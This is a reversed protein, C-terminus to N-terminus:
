HLNLNKDGTNNIDNGFYYTNLLLVELGSNLDIGDGYNGTIISNSITATSTSSMNIYLGAGNGASGNNYSQLSKITMGMEADVFFVSEKM